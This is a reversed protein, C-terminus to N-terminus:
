ALWLWGSVLVIGSSNKKINITSPRTAMTKNNSINKSPLSPPPPFRCHNLTSLLWLQKHTLRRSSVCAIGTKLHLQLHILPEYFTNCISWHNVHQLRDLPEFTHNCVTWHTVLTVCITWHNVLELSKFNLNIPNLTGVDMCTSHSASVVLPVVQGQSLASVSVPALWGQPMTTPSQTTRQSSMLGGSKHDSVPSPYPIPEAVQVSLLWDM